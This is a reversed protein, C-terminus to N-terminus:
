AQASNATFDSPAIPKVYSETRRSQLIRRAGDRRPSTEASAPRAVIHRSMDIYITKGYWDIDSIWQPAVLLNPGVWWTSTDVVLYRIGLTQDDVLIQKIRGIEREDTRVSYNALESMSRLM